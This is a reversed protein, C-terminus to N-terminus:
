NIVVKYTITGTGGPTVIGMIANVDVTIAGASVTVGDADAADTKPSGNFTVSGAVYTTNAPANSTVLVNTADGDGTNNYTITYTVQEGPGPNALNQSLTLVINPVTHSSLSFVGVVNVTDCQVWNNTTNNAIAGWREWVDPGTSVRHWIKLPPATESNPLSIEGDLYHLQLKYQFGSGGSQAITYYRSIPEMYTNAGPSALTTTVTVSSPLVGTAAFILTTYPSEFEYTTGAVFAHTRTVTGIIIGSGTRTGTITLTNAGTTITGNTMTLLTSVTIPGSMTAGNADNLELNTFSGGGSLTHASAGGTLSISGTGAFSGSNSIAGNASIAGSTQTLTASSGITLAGTITYANGCSV